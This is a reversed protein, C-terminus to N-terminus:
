QQPSRCDQSIPTRPLTPGEKPKRLVTIEVESPLYKVAPVREVYSSTQFRHELISPAVLLLLFSGDLHRSLRWLRDDVLDSRSDAFIECEAARSSIAGPRKTQSTPGQNKLQRMHDMKLAWVQSHLPLGRGLLLLFLKRPRTWPQVWLNLWCAVWSTSSVDPLCSGIHVDYQREVRM